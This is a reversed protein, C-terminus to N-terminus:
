VPGLVIMSSPGRQFYHRRVIIIIVSIVVRYERKRRSERVHSTHEVIFCWFSVKDVLTMKDSRRQETASNVAEEEEEEEKEKWHMQESIYNTQM